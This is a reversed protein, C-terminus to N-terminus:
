LLKFNCCNKVYLTENNNRLRYIKKALNIIREQNSNIYNLEKLLLNAYQRNEQSFNKIKVISDLINDPIPLMFSFRLSSITKDNDKILFTTRQKIKFSSVPVFYNLIGNKFIIGCLFKNNSKYQIKPIKNDFMKLYDIYDNNIEYFKFKNM